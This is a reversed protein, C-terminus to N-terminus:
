RGCLSEKSGLYVIFFDRSMIWFIFYILTGGLEVNTDKSILFMYGVIGIGSSVFIKEM